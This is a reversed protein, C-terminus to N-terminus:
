FHSARWSLFLTDRDSYFVDIRRDVHAIAPNLSYTPSVSPALLIARSVHVNDPLRSLAGLIVGCGASHGILCINSDPYKTRWLAIRSALKEEAHLHISENSFNLFFLLWPAGWDVTEIRATVGADRLGDKLAAYRPGDGDVGPLLFIVNPGVAGSTGACGCFWLLVILIGGRAMTRDMNRRNIKEDLRGIIARM